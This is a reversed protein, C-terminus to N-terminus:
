MTSAIRYRSDAIGPRIITSGPPAMETPPTRPEDWPIVVEQLGQPDIRTLPNSGAYAYTNVGGALGIPDSELYRGTRPDYDRFYNYHLYTAQDFFQGPFRLEYTFSGLPADNGFPEHNWQWM